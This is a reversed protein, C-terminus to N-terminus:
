RTRELLISVNYAQTSNETFFTITVSYANKSEQAVVSVGKLIARPEFNQIVNRVERELLNSTMSTMPEFLLGVINSGINSNFPKEYHRTMLLNRISAIVAQVDYRLAVDNTVPKKTFTLDIDSYIKQINAM